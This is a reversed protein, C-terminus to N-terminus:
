RFDNLADDVRMLEPALLLHSLVSAQDMQTPIIRKARVICWASHHPNLVYVCAHVFENLTQMSDSCGPTPVWLPAPPLVAPFFYFSGLAGWIGHLCSDVGNVHLVRKFLLHVGLPIMMRFLFCVAGRHAGGSSSHVTRDVDERWGPRAAPAPFMKMKRLSLKRLHFAFALHHRSHRFDRVSDVTVWILTVCNCLVSTWRLWSVLSSSVTAYDLSSDPLPGAGLFGRPWEVLSAKSKDPGWEQERQEIWRLEGDRIEKEKENKM